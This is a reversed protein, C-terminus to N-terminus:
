FQHTQTILDAFYSYFRSSLKCNRWRIYIVRAGPWWLNWIIKYWINLQYLKNWYIFWCNIKLVQESLYSNQCCTSFVVSSLAQKTLESRTLNCPMTLSLVYLFLKFKYCELIFEEVGLIKLPNAHLFVISGKWSNQHHYLDFLEVKIM